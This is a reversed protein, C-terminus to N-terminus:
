SNRWLILSIFPDGLAKLVDLFVDIEDFECLVFYIESGERSPRDRFSSASFSVANSCKHHFERRLASIVFSCSSLM